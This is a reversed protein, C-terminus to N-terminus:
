LGVWDGELDFGYAKTEPAGLPDPTASLPVPQDDPVNLRDRAEDEATWDGRADQFEPSVGAEVERVCRTLFGQDAASLDAFSRVALLRDNFAGVEEGSRAIASPAGSALRSLNLLEDDPGLYAPDLAAM